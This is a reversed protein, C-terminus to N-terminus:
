TGWQHPNPHIPDTTVCPSGVGTKNGCARPHQGNGHPHRSCTGRSGQTSSHEPWMSVCPCKGREEWECRGWRRTQPPLQSPLAQSETQWSLRGAEKLLLEWHGARPTKLTPSGSAPLQCLGLLDARHFPLALKNEPKACTPTEWM